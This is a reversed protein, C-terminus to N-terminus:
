AAAPHGDVVDACAISAARRRAPRRPHRRRRCPCSARHAVLAADARRRPHEVPEARDAHQQQAVEAPECSSRMPPTGTPSVSAASRSTAGVSSSRRCRADADDSVSMGSSARWSSARRGGPRARARGADARDGVVAAAVDEAGDRGGVAPRAVRGPQRDLRRESPSPESSSTKVATTSAVSSATVLARNTASVTVPTSPWVAGPRGTSRTRTAGGGRVANGAGVHEAARPMPSAVDPPTLDSSPAPSSASTSSSTTRAAAPRAPPARASGDASRSCAPGPAPRRAPRATSTSSAPRSARRPLPRDRGPRRSFLGATLGFPVANARELAEDLSTSRVCPSSRCSCSPRGCRRTTPCASSPRRSSTAPPSIATPSRTAAARAGRGDLGADAVVADYRDVRRRRRRGAVPLRRPELPASRRSRRPARRRASRVFEDVVRSTSSCGRRRRASRAPSGSRRQPGHGRRRPRPRGLRRRDGPEQWGDRLDGAEPAVVLVVHIISMGVRARGPSRSGTSAATDGVLAAGAEAGGTVLNVAGRPVGAEVLADYVLHGCLSGIESPKIICTNGAVLAAGAPGAVLASPYNFPAIVAWVGYPRMVDTTM